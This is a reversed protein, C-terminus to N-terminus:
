FKVLIQKSNIAPRDLFLLIRQGFILNQAMLLKWSTGGEALIRKRKNHLGKYGLYCPGFLMEALDNYGLLLFCNRTPEKLGVGWGGLPSRANQSKQMKENKELKTTYQLIIYKSKANCVKM